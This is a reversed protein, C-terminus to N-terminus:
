RRKQPTGPPCRKVPAPKAARPAKAAKAPVAPAPVDPPLPPLDATATDDAPAVMDAFLSVQEDQSTFQSWDFTALQRFYGIRDATFPAYSPVSSTDPLTLVAQALQAYDVTGRLELTLAIHVATADDVNLVNAWATTRGLNRLVAVMRRGNIVEYFDGLPRVVLPMLQGFTSVSATLKALEEANDYHWGWASLVVETLEIEIM